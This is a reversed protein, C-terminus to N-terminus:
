KRNKLHKERAARRRAKKYPDSFNHKNGRKNITKRYKPKLKLKFFGTVALDNHRFMLKRLTKFYCTIVIHVVSIHIGTEESIREAIKTNQYRKKM